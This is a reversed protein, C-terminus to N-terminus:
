YAPSKSIDEKRWKGLTVNIQSVKPSRYLKAEIVFFDREAGCGKNGDMLVGDMLFWKHDNKPLKSVIIIM